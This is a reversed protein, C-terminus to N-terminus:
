QQESLYKYLMEVDLEINRFNSVEWYVWRMAFLRLINEEMKEYIEHSFHIFIELSPFVSYFNGNLKHM